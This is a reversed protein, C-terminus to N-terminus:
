TSSRRKRREQLRKQLEPLPFTNIVEEPSVWGRRAMGVGLRMMWM